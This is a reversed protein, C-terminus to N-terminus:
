ENEETEASSWHTEEIETPCGKKHYSYRKTLIRCTYTYM